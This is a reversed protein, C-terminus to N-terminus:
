RRRHAHAAHAERGTVPALVRLGKGAREGGERRDGHAQSIGLGFGVVAAWNTVTKDSNTKDTTVFRVHATNRNLFNIGIVEVHRVVKEGFRALMSNGNFRNFEENYETLLKPSLLLGVVRRRYDEDGREWTERAIVFQNVLNKIVGEDATLKSVDDSYNVARVVGTQENYTIVVPPKVDKLQKALEAVAGVAVGAIVLCLGAFVYARNRSVKASRIVEADWQDANQYYQARM